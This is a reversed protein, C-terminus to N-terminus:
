YKENGASTVCKFTVTTKLIYRDVSVYGNKQSIFQSSKPWKFHTTDSEGKNTHSYVMELM